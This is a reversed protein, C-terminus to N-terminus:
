SNGYCRWEKRNSFTYWKTMFQIYRLDTSKELQYIRLLSSIIILPISASNFVATHLAVVGLAKIRNKQQRTM